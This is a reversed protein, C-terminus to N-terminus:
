KQSILFHTAHLLDFHQLKLAYSRPTSRILVYEACFELRRQHPLNKYYIQNDLMIRRLTQKIFFSYNNKVLSFLM